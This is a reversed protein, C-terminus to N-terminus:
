IFYGAKTGSFLDLLLRWPMQLLWLAEPTAEVDGFSAKLARAKTGLARLNAEVAGQNVEEAGLFSLSWISSRWQELTIRM